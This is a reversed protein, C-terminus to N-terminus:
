EGMTASTSALLTRLRPSSFWAVTCLVGGSGAASAGARMLKVDPVVPLGLPAVSVWFASAAADHANTRTNRVLPSSEVSTTTGINWLVPKMSWNPWM